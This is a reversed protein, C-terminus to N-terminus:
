EIGRREIGIVIINIKALFHWLARPLSPNNLYIFVIFLVAIIVGKLYDLVRLIIIVYM